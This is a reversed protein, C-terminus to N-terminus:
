NNTNDFQPPFPDFLREQGTKEYIDIFMELRSASYTVEFYRGDPRHTSLLAKFNGLVFTYSVVFVDEPLIRDKHPETHNYFNAVEVRAKHMYKNNQDTTM